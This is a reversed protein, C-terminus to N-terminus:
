DRLTGKRKIHDPSGSLKQKKGRAKDYRISSKFYRFEWNMRRLIVRM